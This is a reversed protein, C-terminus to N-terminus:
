PPKAAAAPANLMDRCGFDFIRHNTRFLFLFMDGTRSFRNLFLSYRKLSLIGDM